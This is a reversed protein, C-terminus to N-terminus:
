PVITRKNMDIPRHKLKPFDPPKKKDPLILSIQDALENFSVPKTLYGIFNDGLKDINSFLEIGFGGDAASALIPIGSLEKRLRIKYVVELAKDDSLDILILDPLEDLAIKVADTTLNTETVRYGLNQLFQCLSSRSDANDEVVLIKNPGKSM